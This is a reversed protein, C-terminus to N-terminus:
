EIQSKPGGSEMFCYDNVCGQASWNPQSTKEDHILSGKLLSTKTQKFQFQWDAIMGKSVLILESDIIQEIHESYATGFFLYPLVLVAILLKKM